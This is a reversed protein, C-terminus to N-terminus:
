WYRRGYPNRSFLEVRMTQRPTRLRVIDKLTGEAEGGMGGKAQLTQLKAPDVITFASACEYAMIKVLPLFQANSINDADIHAVDRENLEELKPFLRGIITMADESAVPQGSELVGLDQLVAVALDGLQPTNPGFVFSANLNILRTSGSPPVPPVPVPLGPPLRLPIVTEDLSVFKYRRPRINDTDAWGYNLSPQSPLGLASFLDDNAFRSFWRSYRKPAPATDEQTLWGMSPAVAAVPQNFSLEDFPRYRRRLPRTEDWTQWGFPLPPLNFPSPAQVTEDLRVFRRKRPATEDDTLWFTSPTPVLPPLFASSLVLATEDLSIFRKRRPATEDDTLWMTSPTAAPATPVVTLIAEDLRQYRRKRPATDDWTQWGLAPLPVLPVLPQLADLDLQQYRRKRPATDDATMWGSNPVAGIPSYTLVIIGNAGLGTGSTFRGGAAGGYLGGAGGAQAVSQAKGGGGGSGATAGGPNSTWEAGNGGAGPPNGGAGGAGGFGADGSAGAIGSSSNGAGNPGAAGGGGHGVGGTGGAFVTSGVCNTTVSAIGAAVITSANTGWTNATPGTGAGVSGGHLGIQYTFTAPLVYNVIKAYCGATAGTTGSSDGGAGIAEITNNADNWDGPRNFSTGSTLFIVIQTIPPLGLTSIVHATEDLQRYKRKPQTHNDSANWYLSPTGVIAPLGIANPAQTTEDLSRSKKKPQTPNDSANWGFNPAPTSSFVDTLHVGATDTLPFGLTDTLDHAGIPGGAVTRLPQATEDLPRYKRIIRPTEDRTLWGSPPAPLGIRSPVLITEDLSQYKKRRPPTEDQTIWGSAPVPVSPPLAAYVTEDLPRYKRRIPGTDEWVYWGFNPDIRPPIAGNDSPTLIVYRRKRPATEDQTIWGINPLPIIKPPTFAAEDRRAIRRRAWSPSDNANWGFNNTSLPTYTIVIIGGGGATAGGGGGGYQGGAAGNGGGGGSGAHTGGPNSTWETGNGGAVGNAGGAGGFGADGNGGSFGSASAGAGNPGGAGGGSGSGQGGGAFKTTGVCNTTVTDAGAAVLTSADKLWTNSTPATGSGTTGGHVGIQYSVTAAMTFNSISAFCGGKGTGGGDAAAGIAEIKNAANNWDAPRTYSTGSTLFVVTDAM